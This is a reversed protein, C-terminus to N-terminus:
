HLIHQSVNCIRQGVFLSYFFQFKNVVLLEQRSGNTTEFLEKRGMMWHLTVNKRGSCNRNKWSNVNFTHRLLFFHAERLNNLKRLYFNVTMLIRGLLNNLIFNFEKCYNDM